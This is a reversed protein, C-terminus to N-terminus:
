HVPSLSDFRRSPARVLGIRSTVTAEVDANSLNGVSEGFAHESGDADEDNAKQEAHTVRRIGIM